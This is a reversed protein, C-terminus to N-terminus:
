EKKPVDSWLDTEDFATQVVEIAPHTKPRDTGPLHYGGCGISLRDGVRMVVRSSYIGTITGTTAGERHHELKFHLVPVCIPVGRPFVEVSCRPDHEVWGAPADKPSVLRVSLGFRGPKHAEFVAGQRNSQADGGRHVGWSTTTAILELHENAGNRLGFASPRGRAIWGEKGAGASISSAEEIPRKDFALKYHQDTLHDSFPLPILIEDGVCALPWLTGFPAVSRAQGTEGIPLDFTRYEVWGKKWGDIGNYDIKTQLSFAGAKKARLKVLLNRDEGHYAVRLSTLVFDSGVAELLRDRLPHLSPDVPPLVDITKRPPEPDCDSTSCAVASVLALAVLILLPRRV